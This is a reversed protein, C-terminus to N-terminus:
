FLGPNAIIQVPHSVYRQVEEAIRAPFPRQVYHASSAALPTSRLSSMIMQDFTAELMHPAILPEPHTVTL